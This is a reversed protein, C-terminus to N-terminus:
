TRNAPNNLTSSISFGQKIVKNQKRRREKNKQPNFWKNQIEEKLKCEKSGVVNIRESFYICVYIVVPPSPSPSPTQCYTNAQSYFINLV